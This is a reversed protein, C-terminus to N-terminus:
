FNILIYLYRSVLFPYIFNGSQTWDVTVVLFTGEGQWDYYDHDEIKTVNVTLVRLDKSSDKM